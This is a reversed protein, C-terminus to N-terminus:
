PLRWIPHWQPLLRVDKLLAAAQRLYCVVAEPAAPEEGGWATAPQLVLPINPSAEQMLRIVQRWESKTTRATLVVKVFTKEPAVRLFELHESWLEMGTASPLKVDVAAVDCFPAVLRFEAALIGNTELHNKVGQRRAWEMHPPLLGGQLLPEGGTWCVADHPREALLRTLAAQLRRRTWSEGAGSVSQPTDCYRCRLNCGALRVFAHRQGLYLGEGQISSFVEVIRLRGTRGQLPRSM